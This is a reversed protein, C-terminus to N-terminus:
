KKVQSNLAPKIVSAEWKLGHMDERVYRHFSSHERTGLSKRAKRYILSRVFDTFLFSEQMIKKM